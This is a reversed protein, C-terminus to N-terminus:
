FRFVGEGLNPEKLRFHLNGAAWIIGGLTAVGATPIMIIGEVQLTKGADFSPEPGAFMATFLVAAIMLGTAGGGVFTTYKGIQSAVTEDPLELTWTGGRPPFFPNPKDWTGTALHYLPPNTYHFPLRSGDDGVWSVVRARDLLVVECAATEIVGDNLERALIPRARSMEGAGLHVSVTRPCGLTPLALLTLAVLSSRPLTPM